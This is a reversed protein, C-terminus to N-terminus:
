VEVEFGGLSLLLTSGVASPNQWYINLVQGASATVLVRIFISHSGKAPIYDHWFAADNLRLKYEIDDYFSQIHWEVIFLKKGEPVTYINDQVWVAGVAAPKLTFHKDKAVESLFEAM